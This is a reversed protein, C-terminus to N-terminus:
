RNKKRRLMDMHLCGSSPFSNVNGWHPCNIVKIMIAERQYPRRRRSRRPIFPITVCRQERHAAIPMM